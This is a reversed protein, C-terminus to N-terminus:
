LIRQLTTSTSCGANGFKKIGVVLRGNRKQLSGNVIITIDGGQLESKGSERISADIPVEVRFDGKSSVYGTGTSGDLTLSAQGNDVILPGFQDGELDGCNLRVQYNVQQTSATRKGVILWSGNFSGTTDRDAESVARAGSCAQLAMSGAILLSVGIIRAAVVSYRYQM